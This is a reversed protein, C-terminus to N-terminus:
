ESPAPEVRLIRDIRLETRGRGPVLYGVARPPEAEHHVEKVCVVLERLPRGATRVAVKVHDGSAQASLLAAVIAARTRESQVRTEWLDRASVPRLVECCKAFVERLAAVDSAARHAGEHPLGFKTRLAVLSHNPLLFSRRSLSLTDVWHSLDMPTGARELEMQLFRADWSAAHAVPVAGDLLARVKEAVDEFRPAGTLKELSLGHVESAGGAREEGPWILTDIRAVCAGREVREICVEVVRDHALDLGTMELDVFAFTANEVPCEWAAGSPGSSDM